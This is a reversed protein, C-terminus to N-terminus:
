LTSTQPLIVECEGKVIRRVMSLLKLVSERHAEDEQNSMCIKLLTKIQQKLQSSATTDDVEGLWQQVDETKLLPFPM